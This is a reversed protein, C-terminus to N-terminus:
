AKNQRGHTMTIGGEQKKPPPPPSRSGPGNAKYFGPREHWEKLVRNLYFPNVAGSIRKLYVWFILGASGAFFVALGLIFGLGIKGSVYLGIVLGSLVGATYIVRRRV